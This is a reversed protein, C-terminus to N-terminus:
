LTAKKKHTSFIISQICEHWGAPGYANSIIKNPHEFEPPPYHPSRIVVAIDAAQLMAIDNHSDGLAITTVPTSYYTQYHPALAKLAYGKDTKGMVHLFRGGQLVHLGRQQVQQIFYNKEDDSGTWQLPETYYRDASQQAEETSLGTMNQIDQISARSYQTFPRPSEGYIDNIAEIVTNRTEGLINEDYRENHQHSTHEKFSLQSSFYDEPTFVASGNEIIFPHQNNLAHRLSQIESATKSSNIIIPIQQESLQALSPKAADFNYDDHDLLTGDLDTFILYHLNDPM